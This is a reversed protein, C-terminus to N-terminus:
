LWIAGTYIGGPRLRGSPGKRTFYSNSLICIYHFINRSQLWGDLLLHDTFRWSKRLQLPSYQCHRDIETLPSPDLVPPIRISGASCSISSQLGEVGAESVEDKQREVKELAHFSRGDWSVVNFGMSDLNLCTAQWVRGRGRGKCIEDNKWSERRRTTNVAGGGEKEGPPHHSERFFAPVTGAPPRTTKRSQKWSLGVGTRWQPEECKCCWRQEEHM